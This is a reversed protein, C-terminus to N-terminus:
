QGSVNFDTGSAPGGLEARVQSKAVETKPSMGAKTPAPSALSVKLPAPAAPLDVADAMVTLKILLHGQAAPRRPNYIEMKRAKTGIMYAVWSSGFAPEWPAAFGPNIRGLFGDVKGRSFRPDRSAPSWAKKIRPSPTGLPVM